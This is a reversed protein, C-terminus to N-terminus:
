LTGRIDPKAYSSYKFSTMSYYMFRLYTKITPNHDVQFYWQHCERLWKFRRIM